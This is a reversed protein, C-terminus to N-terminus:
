SPMRHAVLFPYACRSIETRHCLPEPALCEQYARCPRHRNLRPGGLVSQRSPM